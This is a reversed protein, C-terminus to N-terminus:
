FRGVPFLFSLGTNPGTTVAGYDSVEIYFLLLFVSSEIMLHKKTKM